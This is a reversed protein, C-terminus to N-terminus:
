LPQIVGAFLVLHPGQCWHSCVLLAPLIRTDPLLPIADALFHQVNAYRGLRICAMATWFAGVDLVSSPVEMSRCSRPGAFRGFPTVSLLSSAIM